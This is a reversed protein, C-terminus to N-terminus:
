DKHLIDHLKPDHNIIEWFIKHLNFVAKVNETSYRAVDHMDIDSFSTKKLVDEFNIVDYGLYESTLKSINNDNSSNIVYSEIYMLNRDELKWM